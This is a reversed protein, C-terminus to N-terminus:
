GDRQSAAFLDAVPPHLEEGLFDFHETAPRRWLKPDADDRLTVLADHVRLCAEKADAEAGALYLVADIEEDATAFILRPIDETLAKPYAAMALRPRGDGDGDLAARVAWHAAIHDPHGNVGRPCHTVIVQPRLAEVAARVAAAVRSLPERALRGDPLRALLLADIGTIAAVEELREERLKAMGSPSLNMRPALSSAEGSTLTLLAAAADPDAGARALAGAAGYAEDDPHAFVALLRKPRDRLAALGASETILAM